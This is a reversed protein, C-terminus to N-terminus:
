ANELQELVGALQVYVPAPSSQQWPMRGAEEAARALRRFVAPIAEDPIGGVKTGRYNSLLAQIAKPLRRADPADDAARFPLKWTHPDSPNGVYAFCRAPLRYKPHLLQHAVPDSEADGAPAAPESLLVLREEGECPRYIGDVSLWWLATCAPESAALDVAVRPELGGSVVDAGYLLHGDSVAVAPVRQERAYRWVQDLARDFASRSRLLTGPRKAEVVLFKVHNYTLVLDAHRLQWNLDQERWDLVTTFLLGLISEAAREPVTGFRAEPALAARRRHQFEPWAARVRDTCHRYSALESFM